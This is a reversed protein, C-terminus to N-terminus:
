QLRETPQVNRVDPYAWCGPHSFPDIRDNYQVTAYAEGVVSSWAPGIDGGTRYQMCMLMLM